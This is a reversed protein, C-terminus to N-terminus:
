KLLATVLADPRYGLKRPTLGMRVIVTRTAPVVTITQGDHGQLRFWGAPIMVGAPAEPLWTQAQSYRGSSAENPAAMLAVFNAPLIRRGNWTGDQALLLGFRAWDRATAYLYSGGVFTGAADVEMVASDMGVPAFLAERPFRLAKAADGLHDMWLRSLLVPSGTSYNFVTGPASTAPRRTMFSVMDPELYLMRTVDSVNGYNENFSLGDEMSLLDRVRITKRPDNQWEPFLNAHDLKLAGEGLAAGFLAANVTKTMSWGLLATQASFGSGYREGVLQGDRIVVIARMGPGALEDRELIAQVKPDLRIAGGQPWFAAADPLIKEPEDIKPLAVAKTGKPLVRCGLGPNYEATAAAIGGILATSVTRGERDVKASMLRLLPHGPAQVDEALVIDADRNAIFVNSCIIKAAYGAGVRLLEPPSLLLWGYGAILAGLFISAVWKTLQKFRNM